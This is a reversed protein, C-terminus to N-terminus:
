RGGRRGGSDSDPPPRAFIHYKQTPDTLETEIRHAILEEPGHLADIRDEMDEFSEFDGQKREEIIAWMLKKGLGPVLELMHMRTTVPGAENYFELFRDEQDEVLEELVYPLESQAAHTMEEYEVRGRIRDIEEREDEDRGVYVRDGVLMQADDKPELQLLVFDEEGVAYAVPDTRRQPDDPRGQPLFDLVRAHEEM